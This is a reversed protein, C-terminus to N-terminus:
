LKAKIYRKKVSTNSVGLMRAISSYNNSDVMQILELDSPWEIITPYTMCDLCKGGKVRPSIERSCGSCLPSPPTRVRVSKRGVPNSGTGDAQKPVVGPINKGCYTDTQAHCNPCLIRLNDLRNDTRVGNIHDLELPAPLGNWTTIGCGECTKEKYGENFLRIKLKTSNIPRGDLYEQIPRKNTNWPSSGKRWGRGTFHDTSVDLRTAIAKLNDYTGGGAKLGLLTLVQSWSKSEQVADAFQQDSYKRGM